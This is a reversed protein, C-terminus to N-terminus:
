EVHPTSRFTFRKEGERGDFACCQLEEDTILAELDSDSEEDCSSIDGCSFQGDDSDSAYDPDYEWLEANADYVIQPDGLACGQPIFLQNAFDLQWMVYRGMWKGLVEFPLVNGKEKVNGRNGSSNFMNCRKTLTKNYAEVGENRYRWINGFRRCMWLVHGAGVYHFYNTVADKGGCHAILLRYTEDGRTKLLELDNETYERSVTLLDVFKIYEKLFLMWNKQENKDIVALAVLQELATLNREKFIHKSQDWHMKVKEVCNHKTNWNYSWTEKLRGLRRIIPVMEDLQLISNNSTRNACAHQFLLTLVKEHTRMPLHLTCLILREVPIASASVHSSTFRGDKMHMTMRTHEQELKLIERLQLRLASVTTRSHFPINRATLSAKVVAIPCYMVGTSKSNSLTADDRTVSMIWDSLERATMKGAGKKAIKSHYGQLPGVCRKLCELRLQTVDEWAPLSTLPFVPILLCLEAYRAAQWELFECTCADYHLCRQIGDNDYVIGKARCDMCGGPYGYHKFNRLAGCMMCFCTSAHSGGGRQTYKHLFSLDAIVTIKLYVPYRVGNVECFKQEEIRLFETVLLHFYPMMENEKLFGAVAPTYMDSAQCMTKGTQEQKVLRPDALKPGLVTAFNGRQSTRVGDGTLPVIWPASENASECCADVYITKVYRNIATRLLGSEDGWCWVKGANELPLSHFGLRQALLHVQDMCRRLTSEACLLGMEGKKKGGECSAIAGLASPNFSSQMDSVRALKVTSFRRKRVVNKELQSAVDGAFMYLVMNSLLEKKSAKSARLKLDKTENDKNQNTDLRKIYEYVHWRNDEYGDQCGEFFGCVAQFLTSDEPISHCGFAEKVAKKMRSRRKNATKRERRKHTEIMDTWTSWIDCMTQAPDVVINCGQIPSRQPSTCPECQSLHVNYMSLGKSEKQLLVNPRYRVSLCETQVEEFGGDSDYLFANTCCGHRECTTNKEEVSLAVAETKMIVPVTGGSAISKELKFQSVRKVEQQRLVTAKAEELECQLSQLLDRSTNVEEVLAQCHLKRTAIDREALTM